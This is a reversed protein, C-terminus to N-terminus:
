SKTNEMYQSFNNSQDIDSQNIYLTYFLEDSIPIDVFYGHMFIYKGKTESEYEDADSSAQLRRIIFKEDKKLYGSLTYSDGGSYSKEKTATMIKSFKSKLKDFLEDPSTKKDKISSDYYSIHAAIKNSETIKVVDGFTFTSKDKGLVSTVIASDSLIELNKWNSKSFDLWKATWYRYAYFTDLYYILEKPNKKFDKLYKYADGDYLKRDFDEHMKDILRSDTIFSNGRIKITYLIGKTIFRTKPIMSSFICNLRSPKDPYNEKRFEELALESPLSTLWHQGEKNLKPKIVDGVKMEQSSYHYLTSNESLETLLYEKLLNKLKIM